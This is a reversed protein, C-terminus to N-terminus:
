ETRVVRVFLECVPLCCSGGVRSWGRIWLRAQSRQPRRRGWSLWARPSRWSVSAPQAVGTLHVSMAERGCVLPVGSTSARSPHSMGNALPYIIASAPAWGVPESSNHHLSHDQGAAMPHPTTHPTTSTQMHAGHKPGCAYRRQKCRCRGTDAAVARSSSTSSRDLQVATHLKLQM